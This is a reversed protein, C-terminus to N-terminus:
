EKLFKIHQSKGSVDTIELLYIGPLGPIDLDAENINQFHKILLVSGTSSILKITANSRFHDLIIKINGTTPNPYIRINGSTHQATIDMPQCDFTVNIATAMKEWRTSDTRLRSKEQEIHIFKGSATTADTTCPNSSNNLYRGQVNTFALLRNWNLDIHGIRFDLIPDANALADALAPIYDTSPTDRTGNSMIVYPDDAKQAFGHLQIFFLSSDWAHLAETVAQLVSNANHAPDSIRYPEPSASCVTTTGDCSSFSSANCRHTGSLCYFVSQTKVFVYIGEKGTNYDYIPHPCQIVVNRCGDPNYIYTGWYNNGLPKKEVVYYQHSGETFMVLNYELTDAYATAAPLNNQVLTSTLEKWRNFDQISPIHYEGGGADPLDDIISYIYGAMNGSKSVQAKASLIALLFVLITKGTLTTIKFTASMIRIWHNLKILFM